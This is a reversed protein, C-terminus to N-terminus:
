NREMGRGSRNTFQLDDFENRQADGRFSLRVSMQFVDRPEGDYHSSIISHHFFHNELALAISMLSFLGAHPRCSIMEFIRVFSPAYVVAVRLAYVCLCHKLATTSINDFSKNNNLRCQHDGDTSGICDFALM